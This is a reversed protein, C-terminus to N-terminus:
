LADVRGTLYSAADPDILIARVLVAAKPSSVQNRWNRIQRDTVGFLSAPVHDDNFRRALWVAFRENIEEASLFKRAAKNCDARTLTTNLLSTHTLATM